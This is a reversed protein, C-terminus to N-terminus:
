SKGTQAAFSSLPWCMEEKKKHFCRAFLMHLIWRSGSLKLMKRCRCCVVAKKFRTVPWFFFFFFRLCMLRLVSPNYGTITRPIDPSCLVVEPSCAKREPFLSFSYECPQVSVCHFLRFHSTRATFRTTKWEKGPFSSCKTSEQTSIDLLRDYILKVKELGTPSTLQATLM